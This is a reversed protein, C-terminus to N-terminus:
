RCAWAPARQAGGQHHLVSRLHAALHEPAIGTGPTPWRSRARLRRRTWARVALTGGADMADRANLFLNLFVQQLKGANGKVPPLAPTSRGAEGGRGVKQLQHELLSLTEQIM